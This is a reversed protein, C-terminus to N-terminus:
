FRQFHILYNTKPIVVLVYDQCCPHSRRTSSAFGSGGLISFKPIRLVAERDVRLVKFGLGSVWLM